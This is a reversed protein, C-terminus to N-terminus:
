WISFAARGCERQATMFMEIFFGQAVTTSGALKTEVNIGGPILVQAMGAAAIAAVFQTVGLIITRYWTLNKTLFLALTVAPNFLGGSIRFFLWANTSLQLPAM